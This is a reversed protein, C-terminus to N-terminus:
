RRAMRSFDVAVTRHREAVAQPTLTVDPPRARALEALQRIKVVLQSVRVVQAEHQRGEANHAPETRWPPVLRAISAFPAKRFPVPM